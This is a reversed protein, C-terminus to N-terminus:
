YKTPGGKSEKLAAVRSPMSDCLNMLADTKLSLNDWATLIRQKLEERNAAAPLKAVERKLLVWLQEIPNMDPISPAWPLVEINYDFFWEEAKAGTHCPAGDQQFRTCGTMEMSAALHEELVNIYVEQNVRKQKKAKRGRPRGRRRPVTPAEDDSSDEDPIIALRGLKGGGLAGWVM